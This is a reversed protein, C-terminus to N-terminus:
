GCGSHNCPACKCVGPGGETDCLQNPANGSSCTLYNCDSDTMCAKAASDTGADPTPAVCDSAAKAEAQCLNRTKTSDTKGDAGCANAQICAGFADMQPGCAKYGALCQPLETPTPATDHLCPYGARCAAPIGDDSPTQTSGGDVTPSAAVACKLLAGTETGCGDPDNSFTKASDTKGDAGCARSKVCAYYTDLQAGCPPYLTQACGNPDNPPPDNPCAGVRCSEPIAKTTNTTVTCGIFALVVISALISHRM